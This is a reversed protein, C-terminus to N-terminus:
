KNPKISDTYSKFLKMNYTGVPVDLGFFDADHTIITASQEKALLYLFHDNFDLKKSDFVTLKSLDISGVDSIALHSSYGEIDDIITEYQIKCDDSCRYESKYFDSRSPMVGKKDKYKKDFAKSANFRLLRNLIESIQIPCLLIRAYELSLIKGFYIKYHESAGENDIGLIPLWVNTDLIYNCEKPNSNRHLNIINM